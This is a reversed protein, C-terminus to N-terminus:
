ATMGCCANTKKATKYFSKSSAGLDGSREVLSDIREGRELIQDIAQHMITKTEDLDRQIKLIKDAEAPDKYKALLADCKPWPFANDTLDPAQWKSGLEEEFDAMAQQCLSFAVRSPYEADCTVVAALGNPKSHVYCVHADQEVQIRSGPQCRKAVTRSMFVIFEKASTRQFFGFTSLDFASSLIVPQQACDKWRFIM